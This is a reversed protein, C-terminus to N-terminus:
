ALQPPPCLKPTQATSIDAAIDKHQHQPSPPKPAPIAPLAEPTAAMEPVASLSLLDDRAAIQMGQISARAKERVALPTKKKLQGVACAFSRMREHDKRYQEFEAPSLDSPLIDAYEKGNQIESILKRSVGLIEVWVSQPYVGRSDWVNLAELPTLARDKKKANAM